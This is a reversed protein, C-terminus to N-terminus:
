ARRLVKTVVAAVEAVDSDDSERLVEVVPALFGFLRWDHFKEQAVYELVHFLCSGLDVGHLMRLVFSEICDIWAALTSLEADSALGGRRISSDRDLALARARYCIDWLAACLEREIASVSTLLPHLTVLAEVLDAFDAEAIGAFPRLRGVLCPEGERIVLGAHLRIREKAKVANM